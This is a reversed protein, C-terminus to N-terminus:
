SAKLVTLGKCGEEDANAGCFESVLDIHDHGNKEEGNLQIFVAPSFTNVLMKWNNAVHPRMKVIKWTHDLKVEM